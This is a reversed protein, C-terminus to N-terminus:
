IRIMAVGAMMLAIGALQVYSIQKKVSEMWGYREMLLSLLMQGLLLAM